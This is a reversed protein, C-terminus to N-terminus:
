GGLQSRMTARLNEPGLRRNVQLGHHDAFALLQDRDDPLAELDVLAGPTSVTTTQLGGGDGDPQGEEPWPWPAAEATQEPEPAPTLDVPAPEHQSLGSLDPVDVVPPEDWVAPNPILVAVEPPPETSYSPGWWGHGEVYVNRILKAM